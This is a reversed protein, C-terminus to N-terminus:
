GTIKLTVSPTTETPSGDIFIAVCVIESGNYVPIAPITLTEVFTGSSEEISGEIVDSYITTSFMNMLWHITADQREHRCRFLAEQNQPM